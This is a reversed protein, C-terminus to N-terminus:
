EEGRQLAKDVKKNVELAEEILDTDTIILREYCIVLRNMMVYVKALRYNVETKYQGLLVLFGVFDMKFYPVTKGRSDKRELERFTEDLKTESMGYEKLNDKINRIDRIVNDHRKDLAESVKYSYFGEKGDTVIGLEEFLKDFGHEQEKFWDWEDNRIIHRPTTEYNDRFEQDYDEYGHLAVLKNHWKMYADWNEKSKKAHQLTKTSFKVLEDFTYEESEKVCWYYMAMCYRIHSKYRNLMTLFMVEDLLYLTRKEGKDDYYTERFLRFDRKLKGNSDCQNKRVLGFNLDTFKPKLEELVDDIDRLVHYHDKNCMVSLEFSTCFCANDRVERKHLRALVKIKQTMEYISEM